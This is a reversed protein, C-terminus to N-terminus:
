DQDIHISSSSVNELINKSSSRKDNSSGCMQELAKWLLNIKELLGYEMKIDDKIKGSLASSLANSAHAELYLCKKQGQTQPCDELYHSLDVDVMWWALPNMERLYYSMQSKWSVFNTGNFHPVEVSPITICPLSIM